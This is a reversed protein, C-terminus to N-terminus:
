ADIKRINGFGRSVGKGLGIHDPLLVNTRFVFNFAFVRVGKYNIHQTPRMQTIELQIKEAIHWNVAKAFSLINGILKPELFYIIDRLSELEQYERYNHQNLAQWNRISYLQSMDDTIGLPYKKVEYAELALENKHDRLKLQPFKDDAVLDQGPQFAEGFCIMIPMQNERKYQVRPYHYQSSGDPFHNHFWAFDEQDLPIKELFAGRFASVESEYISPSFIAKLIPLTTPM